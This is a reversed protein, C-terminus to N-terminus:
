QAKAAANSLATAAEDLDTMVRAGQGEIVTRADGYIEALQEDNGLQCYVLYENVSSSGGLVDYVKFAEADARKRIEDAKTIALPLVDLAVNAGSNAFFDARRQVGSKSADFFHRKSVRNSQLLPKLRSELLDIPRPMHSRRRRPRVIRKVLRELTTDLNEDDPPLTTFRPETIELPFDHQGEILKKIRTTAPAVASALQENLMPEIYLLSDKELHPNERIVREVAEQDLSLRHEASEAEWLLIGINLSEGRGADPMFRIVSYRAQSM